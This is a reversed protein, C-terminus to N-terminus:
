QTSSGRVPEDGCASDRHISHHRPMRRGLHIPKLAHAQIVDSNAGCLTREIEHQVLGSAQEAGSHVGLVGGNHLADCM